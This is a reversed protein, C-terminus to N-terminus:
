PCLSCSALGPSVSALPRLCTGVSCYLSSVNTLFHIKPCSADQTSFSLHSLSLSGPSPCAIPRPSLQVSPLCSATHQLLSLFSQWKNNVSMTRAEGLTLVCQSCWDQSSQLYGHGDVPESSLSPKLRRHEGLTVTFACMGPLSGAQTPRHGESESGVRPRTSLAESGVEGKGQTLLPQGGCHPGPAASPALGAQLDQAEPFTSPWWWMSSGAPLCSSGSSCASSYM